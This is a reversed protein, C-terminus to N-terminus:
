SPNVKRGPSILITIPQMTNADHLRVWTYSHYNGQSKICSYAIPNTVSSILVRHENQNVM